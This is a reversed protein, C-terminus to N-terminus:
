RARTMIEILRWRKTRSLPRTEEVRVTDGTKAQNTEDHVHLRKTRKMVKHYRAHRVTDVLQVTVTKQRADSVVVGVRTKRRAPQTM